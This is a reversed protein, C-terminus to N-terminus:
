ATKKSAVSWILGILTMVAGVAMGLDASEIYGGAVLGGGLATLAHRMFGMIVPMTFM